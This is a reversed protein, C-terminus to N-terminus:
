PELAFFTMLEDIFIRHGRDDPHNIGNYLLTTYPLGVKCLHQWVRAADALGVQKEEAIDRLAQCAPRRDTDWLTTFRMMAPMTFHPTILIVEGAIARVQDIASYYHKRMLEPSLGMDNVFEIIVLDPKKAIVDQPFNPLRGRTNSGGIGANFFEIKAQPYAARLDLIFGDAFRHESKSADGGCTVSDGWFGVRLTGGDRLRQRARPVRSARRKLEDPSAPPLPPGIPFVHEYTLTDMKYSLFVNALAMCGPEAGAPHPCTKAEVGERLSVRGAASVQITDIRALAYAYDVFVAQEPGIAGGEVRGLLGWGDDVLYDKGREYAPGDASAKVVESGPVFCGPLTPGRGICQKLRTGKAWGHPKDATLRHRENAVKHVTVLDLQLTAPESVSSKRGAVMCTGPKVTVSLGGAPVIELGSLVHPNKGRRDMVDEQASKATCVVSDWYMVAGGLDAQHKAQMLEFRLTKHTRNGYTATLKVWEDTKATTAAALASWNTLNVSLRATPKKPQDSPIFVWASFTYRTMPKAAMDYYHVSYGHWDELIEKLSHTGHHAREATIQHPGWAHHWRVSRPGEFSDRFLEAAHCASLGIALVLALGARLTM